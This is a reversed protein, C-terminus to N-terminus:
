ANRVTWGSPIGSTGRSWSNMSANKVFTGSSAVGEVWSETCDSASIDTALCKIYNLSTCGNFMYSYCTYALTTAPLEPATTLSTCDRFMDQYCYEELTTAPLVSPATTLNICTNFMDQYCASSLTTAPLLLNEASILTDCGDFLFGFVNDRGALSKQGVFNDGYVLSMINGEVTFKNTAYFSCPTYPLLTAKWMIKQGASITPTEEDARLMTWSSGNNTSYSVDSDSVM